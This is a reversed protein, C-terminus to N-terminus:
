FLSLRCLANHPCCAACCARFIKTTSKSIAPCRVCTTSCILVFVSFWGCRRPAVLEDDEKFYIANQVRPRIRSHDGHILHATSLESANKLGRFCLDDERASPSLM